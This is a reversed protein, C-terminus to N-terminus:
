EWGTCFGEKNSKADTSPHKTQRRSQETDSGHGMSERERLRKNSLSVNMRLFKGAKKWGEAERGPWM